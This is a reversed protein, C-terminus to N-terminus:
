WRRRCLAAPAPATAAPPQAARVCALAACAPPMCGPAIAMIKRVDNQRVRVKHGRAHRGGHAYRRYGTEQYHISAVLFRSVNYRRRAAAYLEYYPHAHLRRKRESLPIRARRIDAGSPAGELHESSELAIERTDPDTAAFPGRDSSNSETAATLVLMLWIVAAGVLAPPLLVRRALGAAARVFDRRM